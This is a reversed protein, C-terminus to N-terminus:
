IEWALVYNVLDDKGLSNEDLSCSFAPKPSANANNFASSNSLSGTQHNSNIDLNNSLQSALANLPNSNKIEASSSSNSTAASIPLIKYEEYGEGGSIVVTKYLSNTTEKFLNDINIQASSSPTPSPQNKPIEVSTIFRVPGM